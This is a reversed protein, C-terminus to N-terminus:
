FYGHARTLREPAIRRLLAVQVGIRDFTDMIKNNWYQWNPGLYECLRSRIWYARMLQLDANIRAELYEPNDQQRDEIYCWPQYKDFDDDELFIGYCETRDGDPRNARWGDEWGEMRLTDIQHVCPTDVKCINCKYQYNPIVKDLQEAFIM